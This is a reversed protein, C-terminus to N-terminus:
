NQMNQDLGQSQRMAVEKKIAMDASNESKKGSNAKNFGKELLKGYAIGSLPSGPICKQINKNYTHGVPCGAAKSLLEEEEMKRRLTTKGGIIGYTM